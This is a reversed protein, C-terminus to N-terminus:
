RLTLEVPASELTMLNAGRSFHEPRPDSVLVSAKWSGLKMVRAPPPKPKDFYTRGGLTRSPEVQGESGNFSWRGPTLEKPEPLRLVWDGTANELSIQELEYGAPGHYEVEFSSTQLSEGPVTVSLTLRFDSPDLGEWDSAFSKPQLLSQGLSQPPQVAGPSPGTASNPLLVKQSPEALALAGISIFALLVLFDKYRLLCDKGLLM